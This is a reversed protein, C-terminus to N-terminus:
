FCCDFLVQSSLFLFLCVCIGILSRVLTLVVSDFSFLFVVTFVQEILLTRWVFVLGRARLSVEVRGNALVLSSGSHVKCQPTRFQAIQCVAVVYPLFLVGCGPEARFREYTAGSASRVM